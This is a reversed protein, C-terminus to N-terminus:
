AGGPQVVPRSDGSCNIMSGHLTRDLYIVLDGANAFIVEAMEILEQQMFKYPWETFMPMVHNFVHNSGKLAFLAGNDKNTDVLPIWLNRYQFNDEDQISFDRHIQCASLPNCNKSMFTGVPAHCSIFIKELGPQLVKLIQQSIYSSENAPIDYLSNWMGQGAESVAHYEKYLSYLHHVERSSLFNRILIFGDRLLLEELNADRLGARKM